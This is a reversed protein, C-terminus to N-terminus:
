NKADAEWLFGLRDVDEKSAVDGLVLDVGHKSIPIHWSSSGYESELVLVVEDKKQQALLVAFPRTDEMLKGVITPWSEMDKPLDVVVENNTPLCHEFDLDDLPWSIIFPSLGKDRRWIKYISKLGLAAKKAIADHLRRGDVM